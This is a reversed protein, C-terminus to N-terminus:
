RRDLHPRVPGRPPLSAHGRADLEAGCGVCTNGGWMAQDMNKPQRVKPQEAGCKECKVPKRFVIFIILVAATAVAGILAPMFAQEM